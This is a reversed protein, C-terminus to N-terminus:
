RARKKMGLELVTMPDDIQRFMHLMHEIKAIDNIAVVYQNRVHQYKTILGQNADLIQTAAESQNDRMMKDMRELRDDAQCVLEEGAEVMAMASGETPAASPALSVRTDQSRSSEPNNAASNVSGTTPLATPHGELDDDGGLPLDGWCMDFCGQYGAASTALRDDWCMDYENAASPMFVDASDAMTPPHEEDWCLDYTAAASPTAADATTAPVSTVKSSSPEDWCLDYQGPASTAATDWCMDFAQGGYNPEAASAETLAEVTPAPDAETNWCMEFTQGHYHPKVSSTATPTEVAPVPESETSWCMDFVEKGFHKKALIDNRKKSTAMTLTPFTKANKKHSHTPLHPRPHNTNDTGVPIIDKQLSPTPGLKPPVWQDWTLFFNRDAKIHQDQLRRAKDFSLLPRSSWRSWLEALEPLTLPPTWQENRGFGATGCSPAWLKMSM